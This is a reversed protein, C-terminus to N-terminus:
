VFIHEVDDEIHKGVLLAASNANGDDWKYKSISLYIEDSSLFHSIYKIKLRSRIHKTFVFCENVIYSIPSIKLYCCKKYYM